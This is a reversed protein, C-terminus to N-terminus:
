MHDIYLIANLHDIEHQFIKATYGEIVERHLNGSLDYFEVVIARYRQIVHSEGPISLCGENSGTMTQTVDTIKPNICVQFPDGALDDRMVWIINRNIGVQPAALGVGPNAPDNVTAYMRSILYLLDADLSDPKVDICQKRLVLSDDYDFITYLPMIDSSGGSYIIAKENTTFPRFGNVTSDGYFPVEEKACGFITIILFLFALYKM